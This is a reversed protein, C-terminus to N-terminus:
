HVLYYLLWDVIRQVEELGHILKQWFIIEKFILTLCAFIPFRRSKISTHIHIHWETWYEDLIEGSTEFHRKELVNIIQLCFGWRPSFFCVNTSCLLIRLTPLTLSITEFWHFNSTESMWLYIHSPTTMTSYLTEGNKRVRHTEQSNSGENRRYKESHM